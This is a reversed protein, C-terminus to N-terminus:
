FLPRFMDPAGNILKDRLKRRQAVADAGSIEEGAETTLVIHGGVADNPKVRRGEAEPARRAASAFLKKKDARAQSLQAMMTGFALGVAHRLCVTMEQELSRTRVTAKEKCFGSELPRFEFDRDVPCLGNSLHLQFRTLKKKPSERKRDLLGGREVHDKAAGEPMKVYEEFSPRFFEITASEAFSSPVSYFRSWADGGCAECPMMAPTVGAATDLTFFHAACNICDYRNVRKAGGEPERREEVAIM